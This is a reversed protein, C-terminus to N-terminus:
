RAHDAGEGAAQRGLLTALSSVRAKIWTNGNEQSLYMVPVVVLTLATAVILGFSVARAMPGWMETTPAGADVSLTAFDISVGLAMPLLGLVTTIATLLVPRFRVIGARLLAQKLPLGLKNKLQDTYDILVIANNVVVVALSIVGM